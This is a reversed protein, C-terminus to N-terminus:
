RWWARKGAMGARRPFRAPCPSEKIWRVVYLDRGALSYGFLEPDGLGLDGWRGRCLELEGLVQPGKFALLSGGPLVLPSLLEAVVDASAVARATAVSFTERERCALEESRCCLVRAKAPSLSAVIAELARCKKAVSDVLTVELEPRALAWVLGPLGGGTGVDVVSGREPLLSLATLADLIHERWLTEADGPGTLRARANAEALLEAFRRLAAEFPAVVETSPPSLRPDPTRDSCDMTFRRPPLRSSQALITDDKDYWLFPPQRQAKELGKHLFHLALAVAGDFREKQSPASRSDQKVVAPRAQGPDKQRFLSGSSAGSVRGRIKEGGRGVPQRPKEDRGIGLFEGEGSGRRLREQRGRRSKRCFRQAGECSLAAGGDDAVVGIQGKKEAAPAPLQGDEVIEALRRVDVGGPRFIMEELAGGPDEDGGVRKSVPPDEGQGRVEAAALPGDEDAGSQGPRGAEVPLQSDGM